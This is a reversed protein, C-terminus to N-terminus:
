PHTQKALKFIQIRANYSDAVYIYDNKDIYIGSPMWFQGEDQGQSGFYYLFNGSKDFIQIVHFLADAIYINGNSDTAIGKPRAMYGTADGAEGFEFLFEGNSSFVQVRFNMSDVIYVKGGDDIWIHTPFNFNGASSGRKGIQRIVKGEKTLITLRHASTEILWLEKTIINFAIGTPQKLVLSDNFSELKKSQISYRYIRNERSDTFLLDKGQIDCIGVLSQFTLKSKIIAQPIKGTNDTREVLVGNGQDLLWFHDPNAAVLSVPKRILGAKKGFIIESFFTKISNNKDGTKDPYQAIFKIIENSFDNDSKMKLNQADIVGCLSLM